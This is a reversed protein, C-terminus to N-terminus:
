AEAQEIHQTGHQQRLGRLGDGDANGIRNPCADTSNARNQQADEHKM